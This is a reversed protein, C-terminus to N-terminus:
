RSVYLTVESSFRRLRTGAETDSRIVQGAVGTPNLEEEIHYKINLKSLQEAAFEQTCGNLNPMEVYVSGRSVYLTIKGDEPIPQGARPSQRCVVGAPYTEDFDEKIKFQYEKVYADSEQLTGIYIGVFSPLEEYFEHTPEEVITDSVQVDEMLPDIVDGFLISLSYGILLFVLALGLLFASVSPSIRSIKLVTRVTPKRVEEEEIVPAAPTFVATNSGESELLAASFEDVTKPRNNKDLEMAWMVADSVSQPIDPDLEVPALLRDGALRAAAGTPRTGTLVRYMVAGLAYVDTAPSWFANPDHQEPPCYDAIDSSKERLSLQRTGGSRMWVSQKADLYLSELCIGSHILGKAHFRSIAAFLPMFLRKAAPAAISGGSHTLHERLSISAIYKEVVYVTNGEEFMEVVPTVAHLHGVKKLDSYLQRFDERWDEFAIRDEAAYLVEHDTHGRRAIQHPYFERLWVRADEARDYAAYVFCEANQFAARGVFYRDALVTEPQLAGEPAPTDQHWGCIACPQGPDAIENMCKHCRYHKLDM